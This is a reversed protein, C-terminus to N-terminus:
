GLDVQTTSKSTIMKPKTRNKDLFTVLGFNKKEFFVFGTRVPRNQNSEKKLVFVPEFRNPKTKGTKAQNPETKKPETQNKEIKILKILKKERNPKKM